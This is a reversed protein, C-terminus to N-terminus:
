VHFLSHLSGDLDVRWFKKIPKKLKLFDVSDLVWLLALANLMPIMSKLGSQEMAMKTSALAYQIFIDMQKIAKPDIYQKPDFGKVEGAITTDYGTTDFRTIAGIGSKGEKLSNLNAELGIGIPSVIGMGTVVVRRRQNM